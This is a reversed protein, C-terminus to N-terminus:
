VPRVNLTGPAGTDPVDATDPAGAVDDEADDEDDATLLAPLTGVSTELPTDASDRWGPSLAFGRDMTASRMAANWRFLALLEVAGAAGAGRDGRAPEIKTGAAKLLLGLMSVVDDTAILTWPGGTGASDGRLSSLVLPLKLEPLALEGERTNRSGAWNEDCLLELELELELKISM